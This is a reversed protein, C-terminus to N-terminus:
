RTSSSPRRARGGGRGPRRLQRRPPEDRGFARLRPDVRLRRRLGPDAAAAGRRVLRDHEEGRAASLGLRAAPAAAPGSHRQGRRRRRDAAELGHQRGALEVPGRRRSDSRALGGVAAPCRKPWRRPCTAIAPMILRACSPSCSSWGSSSTRRGASWAAMTTSRPRVAGEAPRGRRPRSPRPRGPRHARRRDSRGLRHDPRPRAPGARGGQRSAPRRAVAHQAPGRSLRRRPQVIHLACLRDLLPDPPGVSRRALGAVDGFRCLRGAMEPGIERCDQLRAGPHGRRRPRPAM